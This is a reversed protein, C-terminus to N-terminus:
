PFGVQRKSRGRPLRLAQGYYTSVSAFMELIYNGASEALGSINHSAAGRLYEPVFQENFDINYQLCSIVHAIRRIQEATTWESIHARLLSHVVEVKKESLGSLARCLLSFRDPHNTQTFLIDSIFCLTAKDYHKRKQIIFLIAFRMIADFWMDYNGSSFITSYFSFILPVLEDLLYQLLQFQIDKCFGFHDKVFGRVLCWGGYVAAIMTSLRYPKPKAAMQRNAGFLAKYLGSFFFRYVVVLDLSANYSIHFQGM